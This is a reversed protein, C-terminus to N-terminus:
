VLRGAGSRRSVAFENPSPVHVPGITWAIEIQLGVCWQGSQYRERKTQSRFEGRCWAQSMSYIVGTLVFLSITKRPVPVESPTGRTLQRVMSGTVQLTHGDAMCGPEFFRRLFVERRTLYACGSPRVRLITMSMPFNKQCEARSHNGFYRTGDISAITM